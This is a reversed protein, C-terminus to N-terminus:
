FLVYRTKYPLENICMHLPWFSYGSSRFVPIGDTNFTVSINSKASFFGLSSLKRYLHGDHIDRLVGPTQTVANRGLIAACFDKGIFLM